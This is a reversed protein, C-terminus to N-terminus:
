IGRRRCSRCRPGKKIMSFPKGCTTCVKLMQKCADCRTRGDGSTTVQQCGMSCSYPRDKWTNADADFIKPEQRYRFMSVVSGDDESEADSQLDDEQDQETGLNERPENTTVPNHLGTVILESDCLNSLPNTTMGGSGLDGKMGPVVPPQVMNEKPLRPQLTGEGQEVHV